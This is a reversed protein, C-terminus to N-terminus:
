KRKDGSKRLERRKLRNMEALENAVILIAKHIGIEGSWNNNKYKYKEKVM